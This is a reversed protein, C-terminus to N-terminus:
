RVGLLVVNELSVDTDIYRYLKANKLQPFNERVWLLRGTDIIMRSKLGLQERELVTIELSNNEISDGGLNVVSDDNSEPTRGSTAWACMKSLTRFFTEYDVDDNEEYIQSKIYANNVYDRVNCVHRCCMAMCIGSINSVSGSNKLCRLSLDTAAGCLHKSYAVMPNESNGNWVEKLQFDKIDIKWRDLKLTTDQSSDTRIKSDFKMRNSGRDVLHFNFTPKQETRQLVQNLYRSFEARGCGFEVLHLTKKSGVNCIGSQLMHEVLSSQQLAHKKNTDLERLRTEDLWKNSKVSLEPLELTIKRLIRIAAPYNPRVPKADLFGSGRNSDLMHFSKGVNALRLRNTNCVKLHKELRHEAVTHHPDLPCPVRTEQNRNHVSRNQLKRLVVLHESCYEEHKRPTIGCWRRKKEMYYRCKGSRDSGPIEQEDATRKTAMGYRLRLKM